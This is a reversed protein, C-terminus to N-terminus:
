LKTHSKQMYAFNLQSLPASETYQPQIYDQLTSTLIGWRQGIRVAPIHKQVVKRLLCGQSMKLLTAAEQISLLTMNM